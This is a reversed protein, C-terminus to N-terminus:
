PALFVEEGLKVKTGSEAGESFSMEVEEGNVRVVYGPALGGPPAGFLMKANPTLQEKTAPLRLDKTAVKTHGMGRIDVLLEPGDAELIQGRGWYTAGKVEYQAAVVAGVRFSPKKVAEGTPAPEVGHKCGKERVCLAKVLKAASGGDIVSESDDLDWKIRPGKGGEGLALVTGVRATVDAASETAAVRDGVQFTSLEVVPAVASRVLTKQGGAWKVVVNDGQEEVVTGVALGSEDQGIVRAGSQVSGKVEGRSEPPGALKGVAGGCGALAIVSSVVLLSRISFPSLTPM